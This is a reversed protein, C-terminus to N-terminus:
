RWGPRGLLWEVEAPLNPGVGLTHGYGELVTLELSARTSRAMRAPVLPDKGGLLVHIPLASAARPMGSFCVAAALPQADLCLVGDLAMVGLSHGVAYIRGRAIPYDRALASLLADFSAGPDRLFAETRPTALLFGHREALEQMVGRGYGWAFMNEDGGAGHFAVVLPLPEGERAVEPAFVRLGVSRSGVRFPRWRSGPLGRYPDQGRELLAVERRLEAMLRPLDSLVQTTDQPNPRRTLLGLRAQVVQSGPHTPQADLRARLRDRVFEPDEECVTFRALPVGPGAELVYVGARRLRDVRFSRSAPEGPEVASRVWIRTGEVSRLRLELPVDGAWPAPLRVQVPGGGRVWVPPDLTASAPLAAAASPSEGRIGLALERLSRLARGTQGSFFALTARDFAQNVEVRRAESLAGALALSREVERYALALDGRTASGQAEAVAGVAALVVGIWSRRM